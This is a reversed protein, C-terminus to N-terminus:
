DRNTITALVIAPIMAALAICSAGIFVGDTGVHEALAGGAQFGIGEGLLSITGAWTFAVPLDVKPVLDNVLTLECASVLAIPAGGIALTVALAVNTSAVLPLATGAAYILVLWPLSRSSVVASGLLVVGIASGVGWAAYVAGSVGADGHTDVFAPIALATMGLAAACVLMAVLLLVFPPSLLPTFTATLHRRGTSDPEVVRTSVDSGGVLWAASGGTIAALILANGASGTLMLVALLAPSTVALLETVTAEWTYAARVKSDALGLQGWLSRMVAVTPPLAAGLVFALIAQWLSRPSSSYVLAISVLPFALGTLRMPWKGGHRSVSTAVVPGFIVVGLAYNASLLGAWTFTGGQERVILVLSLTVLFTPLRAVFSMLALRPEAPPMLAELVRRPLWLATSM